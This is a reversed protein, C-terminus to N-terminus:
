AISAAATAAQEAITRPSELLEQVEPLALEPEPVLQLHREGTRHRVLTGWDTRTWGYHVCLIRIARGQSVV